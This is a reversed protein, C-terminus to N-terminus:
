ELCEKAKEEFDLQALKRAEEIDKAPRLTGLPRWWGERSIHYDTGFPTLAYERPSGDEANCHWPKWVLKRIKLM